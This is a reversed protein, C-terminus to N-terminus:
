YVKDSRGQKQAVSEHRQCLVGCHTAGGGDKWKNAVCPEYPSIVFGYERLERSLKRCYLLAAKLTKYVAKSLRVHMYKKGNKGHIAYKRYVNKNIELMTDFMEDELIVIVEKDMYTTLFAGPTDIVAVDQGETADIEATVLVLETAATPSTVESKKIRRKAKTLRCRRLRKNGRM